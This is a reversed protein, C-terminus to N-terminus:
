PVHLVAGQAVLQRAPRSAVDVGQVIVKSSSSATISVAATVGAAQGMVTYTPELRLTQFAVHSSSVCVPALVNSADSRPLFFSMCRSKM